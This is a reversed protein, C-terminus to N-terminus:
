ARKLEGVKLIVADQNTESKIAEYTFSWSEQAAILEKKWSQGKPFLCTTGSLGHKASFELLKKLEALARASIVDAGIPDLAEIRDAHIAAAVGTERMVARLFTAKRRDSEVLAVNGGPNKEAALIAIVAGPFGGGTGFDAWIRWGEPAYRYVQASDVFHRSWADELTAKSVLNISPNWKNLLAFYHELREMTERSVDLGIDRM